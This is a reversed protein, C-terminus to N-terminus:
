GEYNTINGVNEGPNFTQYFKEIIEETGLQIVQLGGSRALGGQIVSIRQELQTREEEFSGTTAVTSSSKSTPLIKSLMGGAKGPTINSKTYPVVIFFQKNMINVNETFTEIFEIYEKIQIKLLPENIDRMREELKLLYPRIDHRRSQIVIEVSFDLSNLFNEFQRLVAEQEEFSKLSLNISSCMLVARLGGDKLIIIGDRVEKIPVFSQTSRAEIAM